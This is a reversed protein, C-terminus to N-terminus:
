LSTIESDGHQRPGGNRGNQGNQQAAADNAAEDNKIQSKRRRVVIYCILFVIINPIAFVESFLFIAGPFSDVTKEYIDSYIPIFVLQAIPQCISFVSFMKSLDDGDVISSGITKIAIVRLTAFSDAVGGAYFTGTNSSFAFLVRSCATTLASVFGVLADSLKLLKSLIATGIFTGALVMAATATSYVSFDNGNWNLKRFTFRNWFDNEGLGPGITFMYGMMLFLLLMRGRNPRKKLPFKVYDVVLTPDFFDKFFNRKEPVAPTTPEIIGSSNNFSVSRPTTQLDDLQTVDYAPNDAGTAPSKAQNENNDTKSPLPKLEKIIFIVYLLAIVNFSFAMTFSWVYGLYNFLLGSIPQGIFPLGTTFMAFIGFRFIRDEEPVSITMYSDIAMLCLTNGGFLAPVIAESYAGFEMPIRDFFIASVLLCLFMLSEGILPAIMCAKRKNYRDSWGGAFLMVILPFIAAIPARKGSVNAALKQAGIEAKCVTVNFGPSKDTFTKEAESATYDVTDEFNLIDCDIDYASKDLTTACVEKSYGLNVSCAKDLPFNLMAIINFVSAMLYFFFFPEIVLYRRYRWVKQMYSLKVENQPKNANSSDM